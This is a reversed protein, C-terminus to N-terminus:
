GHTLPDASPITLGPQEVTTGLDYDGGQRSTSAPPRQPRSRAAEGPIRKRAFPDEAKVSPKKGTNRSKAMANKRRFCRNLAYSHNAKHMRKAPQPGDPLRLRNTPLDVPARHLNPATKGKPDNNPSLDAVKVAPKRSTKKPKAMLREKKGQRTVEHTSAPLTLGPVSQTVSQRDEETIPLITSQLM